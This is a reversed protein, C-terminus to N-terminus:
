YNTPNGLITQDAHKPSELQQWKVLNPLWVSVETVNQNTFPVGALQTNTCTTRGLLGNVVARILLHEFNNMGQLAMVVGPVIAPICFACVVGRGYDVPIGFDHFVETRAAWRNRCNAAYGVYTANVNSNHIIYICPNTNPAPNGSPNDCADRMDWRQDVVRFDFQARAM